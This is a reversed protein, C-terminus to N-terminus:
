TKMIFALAYYPPLNAAKVTTFTDTEVSTTASYDAGASITLGGPLTHSHGDTTGTHLHEATGGTDGPNYTTGAGVIFRDRLDPTGHTGDCLIWGIPINVIAGSWITIIGRLVNAM